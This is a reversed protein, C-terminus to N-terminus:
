SPKVVQIIIIVIKEGFFSTVSKFSHLTSHKICRQTATLGEAITSPFGANQMRGLNRHSCGENTLPFDCHKDTGCLRKLLQAFVCM